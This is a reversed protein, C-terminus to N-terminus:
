LLYGQQVFLFISIHKITFLGAAFGPSLSGIISVGKGAQPILVM